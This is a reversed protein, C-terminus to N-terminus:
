EKKYPYRSPYKLCYYDYIEEAKQIDEKKIAGNYTKDFYHLLVVRHYNHITYLIRHNGTKGYPRGWRYLPEIHNHYHIESILPPSSDHSTTNYEEPYPYQSLLQKDEYYQEALHIWINERGTRYAQEYKEMMWAEFTAVTGTKEALIVEYPKM